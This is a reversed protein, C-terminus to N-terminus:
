VVYWVAIERELAARDPYRAEAERIASAAEDAAPVVDEYAVAFEYPSLEQAPLITDISVVDTHRHRLTQEYVQRYVRPDYARMADGTAAGSGAGRSPRPALGLADAIAALDRWLDRLVRPPADERERVHRPSAARREREAELHRRVEASPVPLVFRCSPAALLLEADDAALRALEVLRGGVFPTEGILLPPAGPHRRDWEAVARRAWLGVAKRILTHTVGDVVPYRRGDDSAEFVPRAVDWQLLHIRRGRASAVHALQHIFLSKGTGPLGAVFVLRAIDSLRELEAHLRANQGAVLPSAHRESM